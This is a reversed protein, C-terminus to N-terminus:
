LSQKRPGRANSVSTNLREPPSIDSMGNRTDRFPSLSHTYEVEYSEPTYSDYVLVTVNPWTTRTSQYQSRAIIALDPVCLAVNRRARKAFM